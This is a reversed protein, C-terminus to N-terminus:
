CLSFEPVRCPRREQRALLPDALIRGFKRGPATTEGLREDRMGRSRFMTVRDGDPMRGYGCRPLGGSGRTGGRGTAYAGQGTPELPIQRDGEFVGNPPVNAVMWGPNNGFALGSTNRSPTSVTQRVRGNWFVLRAAKSQSRPEPLGDAQAQSGSLKQEATWLGEASTAPGNPFGEPARFLKTTNARHRPM